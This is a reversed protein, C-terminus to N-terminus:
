NPEFKGPKDREALNRQNEKLVLDGIDFLHPKVQKNYNRMMRKEDLLELEQLRAVRHDKDSIVNKLSIRLSPLEM